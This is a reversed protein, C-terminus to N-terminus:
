PGPVEALAYGSGSRLIRWVASASKRIAPDALSDGDYDGPVADWGTGGLLRPVTVAVYGGSSMLVQWTGDARTYVAPDALGDGDFDGALATKGPGGLFSTLTLLFYGGSSLKIKWTGTTEQYVGYDAQGDGDFDESIPAWGAAGLFANRALPAYGSGSQMVKWNGTTEQYVAPDALGDGDYDAAGTQWGPGGLLAAFSFTMYGATSLKVRWTGTLEDYTGPDAQGDGDFDKLMGVVPPRALTVKVSRLVAAAPNWNANGAQNAAVVVTGTGTFSLKNGGTVTGPGSAKAFAVPLGSSATAALTVVSTMVQDPIAPFSIVQGAKAVALTGTKGGQYKAHNVTGVVTYNGANVPATASGNYAIAVPLGAPATTATVVRPAGNYTQSLNHLTVSAPAKTIIFTNTQTPAPNWNADGAQSATVVVRGTGTFSLNSGIYDPWAGGSIVGPGARVAYVVPLGSVASAALRVVSTAHQDPIPPFVLTQDARLVELTGTAAGQYRPDDVVGVVEFVGACVPVDPSGNYTLSVTLGPPATTATAPRPAGTYPQSLAGLTVGAPTKTVTVSQTTGAPQWDANGEQRAAVRVTGAATFTLTTAGQIQGPGEAVAFVIPLGSEAAAALPVIDTARAPALPDFALSQPSRGAAVLATVSAAYFRADGAKTAAMRIMGTGASVWLTAGDAIQGPGDLVAFSLVGTGSGGTLCAALPTTSRYALPSPPDFVLPAQEALAVQFQQTVAPAPNWSANGSQSAAVTVTGSASFTLTTATDLAAPGGAVAFSVPLGSAATACLAVRATTVTNSLAPFMMTQDRKTGAGALCLRFPSSTANHALAVMATWTGVAPAQFAVTLNSATGPAVRDPRALAFANSGAGSVAATYITLPGTGGNSLSLTHVAPLGWPVLGFDTGKASSAPEGSALAAGNTGRFAPSSEGLRLSALYLSQSGGAATFTGGAYLRCAQDSALAMITSNAGSGANTWAAGDWCAIRNASRGGATTFNGAAYLNDDADLALAYVTSNMGSGLNTWAVGNWRAVRNAALGGATTFDGGAYLNGASDRALARVTNNLGAGLNTWAAGDWRAVRNAALDGANTFDGGAYLNGDPDCLLAYATSNLGSGLNTWAAGDWRAVRNLAIDWWYSYSFGGGAYLNGAGDCALAYVTSNLGNGLPNWNTGTWCGVRNGDQFDGGAFVRGLGDCALAYVMRDKGGGMDLWTTGNRRVVYPSNVWTGNTQGALPFSGGVYLNGAADCALASVNGNLGHAAGVTTWASGTWAAISSAGIAGAVTFAGGAYITGGSGRALAYVMNNVGNGVDAWSSGTWRALRNRVLGNAESFQGGAYVNGSADCVLARVLADMGSGMASWSRASVNWRMVYNVSLNNTSSNTTFSGGAYVYSNDPRVALALVYGNIANTGLNTWAAGDWCALRSASVGGAMTFMGGAFLNGAGDCALANVSANCGSGLNTWAVGDWRAIYGASRGGANTFNGGAFLNGAGDCALANVLANCGSGLNTWAVGDWRAVYGASRGGAATFNGGAYLVGAADCALAYVANNCGSGLNTWAVGDWRAIYSASRGGATTFTGGAYLNGAADRTLAYVNGGLLGYNEGSSMWDADSFTPAAYGAGAAAAVALLIGALLTRARRAPRRRGGPDIPMGM